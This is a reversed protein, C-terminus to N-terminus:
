PDFYIDTVCTHDTILLSVHLTKYWCYPVTISSSVANLLILIDRSLPILGNFNGIESEKYAM